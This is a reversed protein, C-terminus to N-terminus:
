KREEIRNSDLLSIPSSLLLSVTFTFFPYTFGLSLTFALLFPFFYYCLGALLNCHFFSSSSSSDSEKGYKLTDFLGNEGIERPLEIPFV